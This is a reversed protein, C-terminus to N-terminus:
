GCGPLHFTFISIYMDDDYNSILLLLVVIQFFVKELNALHLDLYLGNLNIECHGNM